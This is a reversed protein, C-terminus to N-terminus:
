RTRAVPQHATRLLARRDREELMRNYKALTSSGFRSMRAETKAVPDNAVEMKGRAGRAELFAITNTLHEDDMNAILVVRRDRTTWFEDLEPDPVSITDEYADGDYEAM